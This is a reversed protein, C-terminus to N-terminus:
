KTVASDLHREALCLTEMAKFTGRSYTLQVSAPENAHTVAAMGTLTGFGRCGTEM